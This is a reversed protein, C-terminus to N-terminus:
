RPQKSLKLWYQSDCDVGDLQEIRLGRRECQSTLWALSHRVVGPVDSEHSTGVWSTGQYDEEATQAPLYSALFVGNDGTDRVFGDLTTEIQAKSSHTWISRAIFYDFRTGFVSTDFDANYHFQPRKLVIEETSFLHQLGHHVRARAPEIGSYGGPELFRVLWYAVRLCGCGIELVRSEPLLGTQLLMVMQERGAREFTPTPVGLFGREAMMQEARRQLDSSPSQVIPRRNTSPHTM